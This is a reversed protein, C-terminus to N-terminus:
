VSKMHLHQTPLQIHTYMYSISNWFFNIERLPRLPQINSRFVDTALAGIFVHVLVKSLSKNM